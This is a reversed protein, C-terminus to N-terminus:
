EVRLCWKKKSTKVCMCVQLSVFDIKKKDKEKPHLIIKM